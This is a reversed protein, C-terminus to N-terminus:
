DYEPSPLRFVAMDADTLDQLIPVHRGHTVKTKLTEIAEEVDKPVHSDRYGQSKAYRWTQWAVALQEHTLSLNGAKIWVAELAEELVKATWDVRSQVRYVSSQKRALLVFGRFNKWPKLYNGIVRSSLPVTAILQTFNPRWDENRLRADWEEELNRVVFLEMDIRTFIAEIMEIAAFLDRTNDNDDKSSELKYRFRELVALLRKVEEPSSIPM